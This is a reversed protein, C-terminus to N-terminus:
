RWYLRSMRSNIADSWRRSTRGAELLLLSVFPNTSGGSFYLLITLGLVDLSLQAFLELDTVPWPQHLRIWTLINLLTIAGITFAVATFPLTVDFFHWAILVAMVQGAISINRLLFLRRLHTRSTLTDQDNVMNGTGLSILKMTDTLAQTTLTRRCKSARGQTM